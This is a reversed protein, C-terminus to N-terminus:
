KKRFSLLVPVGKFGYQKRLRNELFRRYSEVILDPYNSYFAFVPPEAQLQTIYNIKIEKGKEAPPTKEQILPLFFDNLDSTPIRKKREEYVDTALDLMKYLRQKHLVSIYIQPIYRLVGLKETYIKKYTDITKHDKTVLDWKNIVLVIGKRQAAAENLIGVDQRSLGEAADVMFLVVDAREISRFTRLNSYFLVNEKIRSRRKLGATDILLYKRKKYKLEMDVPDRTTGPISSVISRSQELLMNALSSKGVNERGVVALKIQGSDEEQIDFKKIHEVVVDLLDGSQRGGMASVPVPTGLGLKYFQGVELDDRPDDVKNIALIVDKKSKRLYGALWDDVNTIGTKCDVVFLLVDAEDVAIEVQERIALDIQHKAEPLYGGTDILEFQQGAWNVTDYNRDRTIGPADDVIAKRKGILRNFLTSKGVNPRGVIAVLPKSMNERKYKQSRM